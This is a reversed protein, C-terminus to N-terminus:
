KIVEKNVQHHKLNSSQM